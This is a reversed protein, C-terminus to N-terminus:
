VMWVEAIQPEDGPWPGMRTCGPPLIARLEDVTAAYWAITDAIVTNPDGRKGWQARLVCGQPYDRPHAYIVWFTIPVADPPIPRHEPSSETIDM